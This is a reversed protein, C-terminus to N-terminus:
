QSPSYATDLVVKHMEHIINTVVLLSEVFVWIIITICINMACILSPLMHLHVLVSAVEFQMMFLSINGNHTLETKTNHGCQITSFPSFLYHVLVFM